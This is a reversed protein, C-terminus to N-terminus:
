RPVYSPLVVAPVGTALYGITSKDKPNNAYLESRFGLPARTNFELCSTRKSHGDFHIMSGGYGGLGVSGPVVVCLTTMAAVAADTANGGALLMQKAAEAALPHHTAVAAIKM